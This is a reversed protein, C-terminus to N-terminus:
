FDHGGVDKLWELLRSQIEPMRQGFKEEFVVVASEKTKGVQVLLDNVFEPGYGEVMYAALAYSTVLNEQTMQSSNKGLTSALLNPNADELVEVAIDMWDTNTDEINRDKNKSKDDYNTLTIPFSLRTGLTMQNIYLGIGLVAWGHKSTVGLMKLYYSSAQMAASDLRQEDYSGWCGLRTASLWASVLEGLLSRDDQSLGPYAQIFNVKDDEDNVLYITMGAPCELKSGLLQPMFDWLMHITEAMDMAEEEDDTALLRVCGVTISTEWEVDWRTEQKKIECEEVKPVEEKSTELLAAIRERAAVTDVAVQTKWQIKGAKEVAVYGLMERVRPHDPAKELLDKLEKAENKPGLAELHKALLALRGEVYSADIEKRKALAEAVVEPAGEKPAKYPRKRLWEKTKRDLTYKLFKRAAKHDPDLVLVAEYAQDRHLYSKNKQCWKALETLAALQAKDLDSKQQGYADPHPSTRLAMPTVTAGAGASTGLFLTALALATISDMM